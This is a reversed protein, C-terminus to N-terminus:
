RGQTGRGSTSALTTPRVRYVALSGEVHLTELTSASSGEAVRALHSGAVVFSAGQDRTLEALQDADLQDFRRELGQRDALYDAAFEASIGEHGVHRRFRESWDALGAAHYPSGARNFALSRLSWLRFTKPGPPGVFRADPPTHERCWLALREMDDRPIAAFRCHDLLWDAVPRGSETHALPSNPVVLALLPLTWALVGARIIRGRPWSRFRDLVTSRAAVAGHILVAGLAMLLRLHGSETDHRSLYFLGIALAASGAVWGARINIRSGVSAAVEVLTAAVMSWDGTLGVVLLAARGRSRIDGRRWLMGVRGAIAGLAMGRAVTAMRFPQFLTIRLSGIWEIVVYAIVLGVLLIAFASLFRRRALAVSAAQPQARPTALSADLGTLSRASLGLTAPAGGWGASSVIALLIYCGWAYWQPARWLHPVMHQPSQVHLTWLQFEEIPMGDLLKAGQASMALATPALAIALLALGAACSGRGVGSWTASVGWVVWCTGLFMGLQLGLSPHVFGALGIAVAVIAPSWRDGRVASALAVWGLALAILRDLLIPEFLHNTGINGAKAILVLVFAQLGICARAEPWIARCLRDFGLFTLAFTAAYLAFLGFSLGFPRSAIDLLWISGEHPNFADFSRVFPDQTYIGEIQRDLLLPLRYAQDNDRSHYGRVTLFLGFLVFLAAWVPLPRPEAPIERM